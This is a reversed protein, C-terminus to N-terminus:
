EETVAVVSALQCRNRGAEKAQYMAADAHQLLQEPELQSQSSVVGFCATLVVKESQWQMPSRELLQRLREAAQCAHSETLGPLIILFEEGGHRCLVDHDRLAKQLVQACHKLAADGAAHGLRDNIQKFHDLDLWILSYPFQHRLWKQHQQELRNRMARRNFLGTLYDREALFRIRSILRVMTCGFINTNIAIILGIFAWLMLRSESSLISIYSQSESSAFLLLLVRITFLLVMLIMPMALLLANSLGYETQLARLIDRSCMTFLILGAISFIMAQPTEAAAGQQFFLLLMLALSVVALAQWLKYPLKFLRAIGLHLITFALLLLADALFWTVLSPNATRMPLLLVALLALLNSVAFCISAKPWVHLPYALLSWSLSGVTAVLAIFILLLHTETMASINGSDDMFSHMAQYLKYLLLCLIITCTTFRIQM